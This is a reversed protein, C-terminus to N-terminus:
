TLFSFHKRQAFSLSHTLWYKVFGFLLCVSFSLEEGVGSGLNTLFCCFSLASCLSGVLSSLSKTVSASSLVQQEPKLAIEEQM